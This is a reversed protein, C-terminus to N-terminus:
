QLRSCIVYASCAGGTGGVVQCTWGNTIGGAVVSNPRSINGTEAVAGSCDCGGGIAFTGPTYCTATVAAGAGGAAQTSISVGVFVASSTRVTAAVAMTLGGTLSFSSRTIGQGFEASGNVTLTSTIITDMPRALVQATTSSTGIGVAQNKGSFRVMEYQSSTNNINFSMDTDAQAVNRSAVVRATDGKQGGTITFTVPNNSPASSLWIVLTNTSKSVSGIELSVTPNPNSIGVKTTPSLAGDVCQGAVLDGGSTGDASDVRLCSGVGTVVITSFSVTGSYASVKGGVTTIAAMAQSALMLLSLALLKKM